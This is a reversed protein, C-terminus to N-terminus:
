RTQTGTRDEPLRLYAHIADRRTVMGRRESVVINCDRAEGVEEGLDLVLLLINNEAFASMAVGGLACVAADLPPVEEDNADNNALGEELDPPEAAEKFDLTHNLSRGSLTM